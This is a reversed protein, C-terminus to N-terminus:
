ANRRAGSVILILTALFVVAGLAFFGVARELSHHRVTVGVTDSWAGRSTAPRARYYWDGDSKGSLIRAKDSGSYLTRPSTFDPTQDEQLEVPSDAAWRLQFYGATAVETDSRLQVPEARAGGPDLILAM